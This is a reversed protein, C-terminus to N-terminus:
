VGLFILHPQELKEKKNWSPMILKSIIKVCYYYIHYICFM